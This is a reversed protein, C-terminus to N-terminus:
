VLMVVWMEYNGMDSDFSFGENNHFDVGGVYESAHYCPVIFNDDDRETNVRFLAIASEDDCEPYGFPHKEKTEIPQCKGYYSKLNTYHCSEEKSREQFIRLGGIIRNFDAVYGWEEHPLLNGLQQPLPINIFNTTLNPTVPKKWLNTRTCPSCLM